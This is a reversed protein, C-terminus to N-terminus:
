YSMIYHLSIRKGFASLDVGYSSVKSFLMTTMLVSLPLLIEFNRMKLLYQLYKHVKKSYIFLM